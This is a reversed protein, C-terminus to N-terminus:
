KWLVMKRQEEPSHSPWLVHCVREVQLRLPQGVQFLLRQLHPGHVSLVAGDAPPHRGNFFM